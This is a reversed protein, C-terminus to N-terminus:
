KMGREIFINSLNTIQSRPLQCKRNFVTQIREIAKATRMSM